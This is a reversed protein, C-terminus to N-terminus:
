TYQRIGKAKKVREKNQAELKKKDKACYKQMLSDTTFDSDTEVEKLIGMEKAVDYRDMEHQAFKTNPTIVVYKVNLSKLIQETIKWPAGILVDDVYKCSLVNLVREQLGM